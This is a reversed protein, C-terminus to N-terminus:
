PATPSTGRPFRLFSLVGNYTFRRFIFNTATFVEPEEEVTAPIVGSYTAM